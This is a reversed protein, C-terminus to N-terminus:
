RGCLSDKKTSLLSYLFIQRSFHFLSMKLWRLSDVPHSTYATIKWICCIPYELVRYANYAWMGSMEQRSLVLSTQPRGLGLARAFFFFFNPRLRGWIDNTKLRWSIDPMQAISLRKNLPFNDNFLRFLHQRTELLLHMPSKTEFDKNWLSKLVWARFQLWSFFKLFLTQKWLYM